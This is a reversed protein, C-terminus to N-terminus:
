AHPNLSFARGPSITQFDSAGGITNRNASSGILRKREDTGGRVRPRSLLADSRAIPYGTPSHRGQGTGARYLALTRLSRRRRHRFRRSGPLVPRHSPRCISGSEILANIKICRRGMVAVGVVLDVSFRTPQLPCLHCARFCLRALSITHLKRSAHQGTGIRWGAGPFDVGEVPFIPGLAQLHRKRAPWPIDGLKSERHIRARAPVGGAYSLRSAEAARSLCALSCRGESGESGRRWLQAESDRWSQCRRPLMACRSGASGRPRLGARVRMSRRWCLCAGLRRVM